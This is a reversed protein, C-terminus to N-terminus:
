QNSNRREMECASDLVAQYVKHWNKYYDAVDSPDILTRSTSEYRAKFPHLQEIHMCYFVQYGVLPYVSDENWVPNDHHDVELYGLLHCIGEICGEEMAERRFCQEPTENVEIHGGPFDWGRDELDVMVLKKKYFCFGHVSTILNRSPLRNDQKWTLKVKSNGWNVYATTM